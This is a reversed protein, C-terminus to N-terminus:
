DGHQGTVPPIIEPNDIEICHFIHNQHCCASEHLLVYLELPFMLKIAIFCITKKGISNECGWGQGPVAWTCRLM